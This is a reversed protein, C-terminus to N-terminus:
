FFFENIIIKQSCMINLDLDEIQDVMMPGFKDDVLIETENGWAENYDYYKKKLREYEMLNTNQQISYTIKLDTIISSNNSEFFNNYPKTFKVYFCLNPHNNM